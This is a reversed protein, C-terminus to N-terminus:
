AGKLTFKQLFNQSLTSLTAHAGVEGMHTVSLVGASVCPVM